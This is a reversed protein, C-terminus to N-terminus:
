RGQYMRYGDEPPWGPATAEDMTANRLDYRGTVVKSLTAADKSSTAYMSHLVAGFM